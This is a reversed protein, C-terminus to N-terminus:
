EDMEWRFYRSLNYNAKTIDTHSCKSVIRNVTEELKKENFDGTIICGRGIIIDGEYTMRQLRKPSILEFSFLDSAGHIEEPGIDIHYYIYFDDGDDGWDELMKTLAKIILM